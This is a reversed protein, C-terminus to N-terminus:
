RELPEPVGEPYLGRARMDDNEDDSEDADIEAFIRNTRDSAEMSALRDEDAREGTVVSEGAWARRVANQVAKSICRTSCAYWEAPGTGGTDSHEAVTGHLGKAPGDIEENVVRQKSCGDCVYAVMQVKDKM